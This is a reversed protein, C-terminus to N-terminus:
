FLFHMIGGWVVFNWSAGHWIGTIIFVILLNLYEHKRNGGMSIYIYDRFWGSLTMHWRRWFESISTSLYPRDFNEPFHFGLIHGIGIAMDSYGSFDYYIQLTYFISGIWAVGVTNNGAGQKWIQDVVAGLSNAIIAKKGLGVIFRRIGEYLCHYDKERHHINHYIDTYRVIPGAILQPFLAIYLAVDTIKYTAKVEGKYVDIVYSMGQFTFFSIGIPLIVNKLPINKGFIMNISSISFDFYKFYFLLGVNLLICLIFAIRNSGFITQNKEVLIGSLYNIVISAIILWLYKPQSWSFFILSALLLWINSLRTDKLFRDFLIVIPLFCFIFVNSSFVM